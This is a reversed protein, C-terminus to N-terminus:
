RAEEEDAAYGVGYAERRRPRRQAQAAVIGIALDFRTVQGGVFLVLERRDVGAEIGALEAVRRAGPQLARADIEVGVTEDVGRLAIAFDHHAM